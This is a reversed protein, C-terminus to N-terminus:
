RPGPLSRSMPYATGMPVPEPSASLATQRVAPADTYTDPLPKMARPVPAATPWVGSGGAYLGASKKVPPVRPKEYRNSM